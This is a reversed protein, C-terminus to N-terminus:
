TDSAVNEVIEHVKRQMENVSFRERASARAAAGISLAREPHSILYQIATALADPEGPPVLFGTKPEGIIETPGGARTAIVPKGSLMGEVIVRGFPEPAVSTHAVIDVYHLLRPIDDRFGLFHVRRNVGKQKARQRLDNAYSDDGDFMPSGVVLAHVDPLNTLADILVHQGKWPALRGFVGVTPASAPIDLEHQLEDLREASPAAFRDLDFGNYVVRCRSEDGSSQEFARGTARSNVIVRAAFANAFLVSLRRTVPSFHEATLLDHLNWIFPRDACWSAPGAAILAKQSNAVVVDYERAVHRVRNVISVFGPVAALANRVNAGKQVSLFEDSAPVVHVTLGADELRKRFPGDEFLVVSAADGFSRAVDLLYLEAGSLVGAHDVFLVRPDAM